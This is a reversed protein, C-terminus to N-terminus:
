RRRLEELRRVEDPSLPQQQIIVTRGGEVIRAQSGAGLVVEDSEAGADGHAPTPHDTKYPSDSTGEVWHWFLVGLTMLVLTAAIAAKSPPHQIRHPPTWDPTRHRM